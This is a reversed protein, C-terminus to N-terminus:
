FLYIFVDKDNNKNFFPNTKEIEDYVKNKQLHNSTDQNDKVEPKFPAPEKRLKDWDIEIKNNKKLFIVM